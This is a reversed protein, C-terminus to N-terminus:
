FIKLIPFRGNQPDPRGRPGPFGKLFTPPSAGWREPPDGLVGSGGLDGFHGIESGKLFDFFGRCLAAVNPRRRPASRGLTFRLTKSAAYGGLRGRQPPRLSAAEVLRGQQPQM